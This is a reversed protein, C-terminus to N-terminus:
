FFGMKELAMAIIILAVLVLTSDWVMMLVGFAVPISVVGFIITAIGGALASAWAPFGFPRTYILIM